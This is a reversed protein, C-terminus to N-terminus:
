PKIAIFDFSTCCLEEPPYSQFEPALELEPLAQLLEQNVPQRKLVVRFGADETLSVFDLPRLRNQYQLDNNWLRWDADGYALYNLQTINKDFYAYHDGCNVSHIALGGSCLVRYSELMLQRITEAPVHELVSNSFVVDVSDVPLGTRAANCPANYEICTLRLLDPLTAAHALEEFRVEVQHSPISSRESIMPLYAALAKLMQFTLREDLHRVLDFTQCRAAGALSFCVPLTPFWGTGIEVFCRGTPTQGAEKMCSALIGWDTVKAKVHEEFNRLGGARRQLLDNASVGGPISSLVKQTLGKIRWDM